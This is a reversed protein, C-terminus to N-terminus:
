DLHSSKYKQRVEEISIKEKLTILRLVPSAPIFPTSYMAYKNGNAKNKLFEEFSKFRPSELTESIEDLENQLNNKKISCSRIFDLITRKAFLHDPTKKINVNPISIASLVALVLCVIIFELCVVYKSMLIGVLM